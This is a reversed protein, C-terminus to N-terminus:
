GRGAYRSQHLTNAESFVIRKTSVLIWVLSVNLDEVVPFAHRTISQFAEFSLCTQLGVILLFLCQLFLITTPYLKHSSSSPIWHPVNGVSGFTIYWPGGDFVNEKRMPDSDWWESARGISSREEWHGRDRSLLWEDCNRWVNLMTGMSWWGGKNKIIFWWSIECYLWVM